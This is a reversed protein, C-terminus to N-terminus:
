MAGFLETLHHATHNIRRLNEVANVDQARGSAARVFVSVHRLGQQSRAVGAEVVFGAAPFAAARHAGMAACSSANHKRSRSSGVCNRLAQVRAVRCRVVFADTLILKRSYLFVRFRVCYHIARITTSSQRDRHSIDASHAAKTRGIVM